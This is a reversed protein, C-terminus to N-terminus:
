TPACSGHPENSHNPSSSLTVDTSPELNEFKDSDQYNFLCMEISDRLKTTKYGSEVGQARAVEHWFSSFVPTRYLELWLLDRLAVALEDGGKLGSADCADALHKAFWQRDATKSTALGGIMLIWLMMEPYQFELTRIDLRELCNRIRTCVLLLIPVGCTQDRLFMIIHLTLANSFLYLIATSFDKESYNESLTILLTKRELYNLVDSYSEHIQRDLNGVTVAEKILSVTRITWYTDIMEESLVTLNTLNKLKNKYRIATSNHEPRQIVPPIASWIDFDFRPMENLVISTINDIWISLIRPFGTLNQIGGRTDIMAELGVLHMRAAAPTASLSELSILCGVAMLTADSVPGSSESLRQNLLAITQTKYYFTIKDSIFLEGRIVSRSMAAIFLTAQMLVPDQFATPLWQDRPQLATYTHRFVQDYYFVLAHTQNKLRAATTNFPDFPESGLPLRQISELIKLIRTTPPETEYSVEGPENQQKQKVPRSAETRVQKRRAHSRILNRISGEPRRTGSEPIFQLDQRPSNLNQVVETWQCNNEGKRHQRPKSKRPVSLKRREGHSEENINETIDDQPQANASNM